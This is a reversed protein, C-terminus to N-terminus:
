FNHTGQFTAKRIADNAIDKLDEAHLMDVYDPQSMDGSKPPVKIFMRLQPPPASGTITVHLVEAPDDEGGDHEPKVEL